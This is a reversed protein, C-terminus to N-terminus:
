PAELDRRMVLGTRLALEALRARKHTQPLDEVGVLAFLAGLHAKVRDVSLSVENAIDQNSAPTVFPSGDRYPRCLATLIRRQTSNLAPLEGKSAARTERAEREVPSRFLLHTAGFRLVDGDHLARQGSVREENVFSGNRSLGHDTLTWVDGVNELEAHLRSVREDHDLCLECMPDRGVRVRAGAAELVLIRQQDDPTRFVLFPTRQREADIQAKLEVPSAQHPAFPGSGM